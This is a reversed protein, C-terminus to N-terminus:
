RASNRPTGSGSGYAPVRRRPAGRRTFGRPPRSRASRPRTRYSSRTSRSDRSNWRTERLDPGPTCRFRPDTGARGMRGPDAGPDGGARGPKENVCTLRIGSRARRREPLGDAGLAGAGSRRVHRRRHKRAPRLLRLRARGSGVSSRTERISLRFAGNYEHCGLLTGGQNQDLDIGEDSHRRGVQQRILAIPDNLGAPGVLGQTKEVPVM